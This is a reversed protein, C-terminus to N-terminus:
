AQLISISLCIYAHSKKIWKFKDDSHKWAGITAVQSKVFSSECLYDRCGLKEKLFSELSIKRSQNRNM